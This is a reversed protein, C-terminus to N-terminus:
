KKKFQEFWEVINQEVFHAKTLLELVEEESYSRKELESIYRLVSIPVKIYDEEANARYYTLDKTEEFDELNWKSTNIVFERKAGIKKCEKTLYGLCEDTCECEQKTEEQPIIIKYENHFTPYGTHGAFGVYDEVEFTKVEVFECSPNKVFWELFENPIPQVGNVILDQDTTLIIKKFVTDKNILKSQSYEKNTLVDLCKKGLHKHLRNGHIYYDGKKIEEDNTIYIHKKNEDNIEYIFNISLFLQGCEHVRLKSPKDTPIVHINKM